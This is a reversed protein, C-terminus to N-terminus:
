VGVENAVWGCAIPFGFFFALSPAVFISSGLARKPYAGWEVSHRPAAKTFASRAFPTSSFSRTMTRMVTAPAVSPM